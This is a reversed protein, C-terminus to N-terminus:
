IHTILAAYPNVLGEQRGWFVREGRPSVKTWPSAFVMVQSDENTEISVGERTIHKDEKFDNIGQVLFEMSCAMAWFITTLVAYWAIDFHSEPDLVWCIRVMMDVTWPERLARKSSAPTLRTAGTLVAAMEDKSPAWKTGHLLHWAWIGYLSNAITSGSYCGSCAVVFALLLTPNAPCKASDEINQENCFMHFLLLGSGYMSLTGPAWAKGMVWVIESLAKDSLGIMRSRVKIPKWLILRDQARCHPRLLSPAPRLGVQYPKPKGSGGKEEGSLGKLRSDGKENSESSM